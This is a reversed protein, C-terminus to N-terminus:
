SRTKKWTGAETRTLLSATMGLDFGFAPVEVVATAVLGVAGVVTFGSDILEDDAGFDWLISSEYIAKKSSM